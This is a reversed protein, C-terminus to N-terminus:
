RWSAAAGEGLETIDGSALDLLKLVFVDDESVTILIRDGEPSWEPFADGFLMGRTIQRKESGDSRMVWLNKDEETGSAWAIHSGDRSPSPWEDLDTNETLRLTEGTELHTVYIEPNGDRGSEYAILDASRAWRGYADATSGTDVAEMEGTAVELLHLGEELGVLLRKGEPGWDALENYGALTVESEGTKLDLLMLDASDEAMAIFAIRDGAPSWVPFGLETALSTLQRPSPDSLAFTFLETADGSAGAFVIAHEAPAPFGALVRPEQETTDSAPAPASKSDPGGCAALALTILLFCPPRTM